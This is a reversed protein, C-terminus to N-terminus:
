APKHVTLGDRSPNDLVSLLLTRTAGDPNQSPNSYTLLSLLLTWDSLLACSGRLGGVGYIGLSCEPMLSSGASSDNAAGGKPVWPYALIGTFPLSGPLEGASLVDGADCGETITVTANFLPDDEPDSLSINAFPLLPAAQGETYNLLLDPPLELM